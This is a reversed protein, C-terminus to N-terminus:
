DLKKTLESIKEKVYLPDKKNVESLAIMWDRKSMFYNKPKEEVRALRRIEYEESFSLGNSDKDVYEEIIRKVNNLNEEDMQSEQNERQILNYLKIPNWEKTTTANLMYWGLGMMIPFTILTNIARGWGIYKLKRNYFVGGPILAEWFKLKDPVDSPDATIIKDIM